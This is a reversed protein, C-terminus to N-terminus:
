RDLVSYIDYEYYGCEKVESAKYFGMPAETGEMSAKHQCILGFREDKERHICNQCGISGSNVNM